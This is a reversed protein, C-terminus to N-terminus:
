GWLTDKDKFVAFVVIEGIMRMEQLMAAIAAYIERQESCLRISKDRHSLRDAIKSRKPM